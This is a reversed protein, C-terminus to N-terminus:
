KTKIDNSWLGKKNWLTKFLIAIADATIERQYMELEPNNKLKGAVIREVKSKFDASSIFVNLAKKIENRVDSLTVDEAVIKSKDPNM